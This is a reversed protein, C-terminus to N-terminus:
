SEPTGHGAAADNSDQRKGAAFKKRRRLRAPADPGRVKRMREQARDLQLQKEQWLGACIEVAREVSLSVDSQRPRTDTRREFLPDDSDERAGGFYEEAVQRNSASFQGMFRALDGEAMTILPGRSLKSLLRVINDRNPNLEQRSFRPIHHNFLRLFELTEADLSENINEPRAFDASADIGTVSLFDEVVDGSKLASKEYKRCIVNGRGFIRSWRALLNWHNYRNEVTEPNPLQLTATAGSKVSTSYTSLLYDDQRRVYIVIWVNEFHPSLVDKLWQVESDDLLRSSCHEGSMVVTRFTGSHFEGTLDRVLEDRFKRAQEPTRIGRIKRLPGHRSLEQAAVTLGTHNENGPSSPYLVGKGRLLDRNSRFFRQISTTGTKETGIHLYLDV